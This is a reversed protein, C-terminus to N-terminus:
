ANYIVSEVIHEVDSTTITPSPSETSGQSDNLKEAEGLTMNIGNTPYAVLSLSGEPSQEYAM